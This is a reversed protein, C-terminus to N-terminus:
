ERVIETNSIEAYALSICKLIFSISFGLESVLDLPTGGNEFMGENPYQITYVSFTEVADPIFNIKGNFISYYVDGMIPAIKGKSKQKIFEEVPIETYKHNTSSIGLVKAPTNDPNVLSSISVESVSSNSITYTYTKLLPLIDTAAYDGKSILASMAEYFYEEARDGYHAANTDGLRKSIRSRIGSMTFDM